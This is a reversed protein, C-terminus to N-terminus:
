QQQNDLLKFSISKIDDLLLYLKGYEDNIRDIIWGYFSPVNTFVAYNQLDCGSGTTLSSSVIGRLYFTNDHIVFLGNGADGTCVGTGNRSGACFTRASSLQMLYHNTYFCDENNNVIPVEIKNLVNKDDEDYGTRGYSVSLGKTNRSIQTNSNILCIPQIYRNFIVNDTLTLIAVDADFSETHINWDSHIEISDVDVSSRGRRNHAGM